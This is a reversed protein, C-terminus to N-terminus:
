KLLKDLCEKMKEPSQEGVLTQLPKGDKKCFFITPTGSVSYKETTDPMADVDVLFFEAKGDYEKKLEQIVPMMRQCHPCWTAFFELLQPLACAKVEEEFNADTIAKKM